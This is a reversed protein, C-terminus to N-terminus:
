PDSQCCRFAAPAPRWLRDGIHSPSGAARGSNDIAGAGLEDSPVNVSRTRNARKARGDARRGTARGVGCIRACGDDQEAWLGVAGWICCRGGARQREQAMPALASRLVSV